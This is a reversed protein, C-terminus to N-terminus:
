QDLISPDNRYELATFGSRAIHFEEVGGPEDYSRTENIQMRM